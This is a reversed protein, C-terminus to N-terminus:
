AMTDPMPYEAGDSDFFRFGVPEITLCDLAETANLTHLRAIQFL